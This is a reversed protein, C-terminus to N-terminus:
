MCVCPGVTRTASLGAQGKGLQTVSVQECGGGGGRAPTIVGAMSHSIRGLSHFSIGPPIDYGRWANM